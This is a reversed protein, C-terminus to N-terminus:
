HRQKIEDNVVINLKPYKSIFSFPAESHCSAGGGTKELTCIIVLEYSGSALPLLCTSHTVHGGPSCTQGESECQTMVVLADSVDSCRHGQFYCDIRFEGRIEFDFGSRITMSVDISHGLTVAVVDSGANGDVTVSWEVPCHELSSIMEADLTVGHLSVHGSKNLRAITWEIQFYLFSYNLMAHLELDGM